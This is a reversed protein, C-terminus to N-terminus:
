RGGLAWMDKRAVVLMAHVPQLVRTYQLHWRMVQNAAVSARGGVLLIEHM